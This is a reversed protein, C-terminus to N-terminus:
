NTLTPGFLGRLRFARAVSICRLLVLVSIWWDSFAEFGFPEPSKFGWGIALKNVDTRFPRSASLSQRSKLISGIVWVSINLGFLGRLRFARAVLIVLGLMTFSSLDSFAEFGFPEPSQTGSFESTESFKLGFLGRLRFARAVPLLLSRKSLRRKRDSFPEFGFPEPSKRIEQRNQSGGIRDSFPEFGFPEPSTETM